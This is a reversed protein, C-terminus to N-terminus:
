RNQGDHEDRVRGPHCHPDSPGCDAAAPVRHGVRCPGRLGGSRGALPFARIAADRFRLGWGRVRCGRAGAPRVPGANRLRTGALRSIRLPVGRWSLEILLALNVKTSGDVDVLAGCRGIAAELAAFDGQVFRLEPQAAYGLDRIALPFRNLQLLAVVAFAVGAWRRALGPKAEGDVAAWTAAVGCLVFVAIVPGYQYLEGRKGALAMPVGVLMPALAFAGGLVAGRRIAIVVAGAVALAVVLMAVRSLSGRFFGAAGTEGVVGAARELLSLWPVDMSWQGLFLPRAVVGSALFAVGAALVALWLADQEGALRAAPTGRCSMARILAAVIGVGGISLATVTGNWMLAAGAAVLAVAVAGRMAEPRGYARAHWAVVLRAALATAFIGTLKGFYGVRGLEYLPSGLFALALAGFALRRHAFAGALGVASIALVVACALDYSFMGSRGLAAGILAFLAFCGFRPDARYLYDVYSGYADAPNPEGRVELRTRLWDAAHAYGLHDTGFLYAFAPQGSGIEDGLLIAMAIASALVAAVVTVTIRLAGVHHHDLRCSLV